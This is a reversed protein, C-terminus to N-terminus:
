VICTFVNGGIWLVSLALVHPLIEKPNVVLGLMMKQGSQWLGVMQEVNQRNGGTTESKIEGVVSYHFQKNLVVFDAVREQHTVVDGGSESRRDYRAPTIWAVNM